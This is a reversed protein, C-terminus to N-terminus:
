RLREPLRQLIRTVIQEPDLRKCIVDDGGAAYAQDIAWRDVRAFCFVVALERWRPDGRVVQCLEVGTFDPMIWDLVLLDPEATSLAQWFLKPQNCVQVIANQDRLLVALQSSFGEDDDMLLISRQRHQYQTRHLVELVTQLIQYAALPKHLFAAGGLRAVAVRDDLSEYGTLAIVPISRVRVNAHTSLRKLLDLGSSKTVGFNLDLLIVNPPDNLIQQLALACDPATTVRLDWAIAEIRIREALPQDDDIILLHLQQSQAAPNAVPNAVPNAIADAATMDEGSDDALNSSLSPAKQIKDFIGASLIRSRDLMEASVTPQQLLV